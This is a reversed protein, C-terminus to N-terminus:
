FEEFDGGGEQGGGRRGRQKKQNIRYNAALNFSRSRWQFEGISYFDPGFNEYRRLRTNLLDRVSLTLTLDKSPLFDKSWGIDISTMSRNRGQVTARPARYNARIQLDSDWFSFRSTLRSNFSVAEAEFSDDINTGDTLQYFVNANADLRLWKLAFYNFTMEFGYDNRTSLNEPTTKSTGDPFVERIREIVGTSYRYYIGSTLTAKNFFNLYNIEYSDTFTPDLNPNGAFINRNDSFSLFPNLYWFRPRRVRRSYSVQIANAESFKYNLFASPFLSFYTRPNTENTQLLETNIDSYESRLGLQYNFKEGLKNGYQFYAAYINEDYNFDNSLNTLNEWSGDQLEEILYENSINRLSTNLGFEYQHDKGLPKVYDMRFNWRREGEQNGSRQDLAPSEVGGDPRFREEFISGETEVDDSYRASIELKHDRSSFEKTYNLSYELASEDESEDDTRTTRGLFNSTTNLFDDYLYTSLNSEDSLRYSFAGTLSEKESIFYDAGFRFSNSLGARNSSRSQDSIYTTADDYVEQYVAGIGPNERYNLGYSGFLNVKGKRYNLNAGVGARTPWGGNLDFSGNFGSRKDKKLVINIIGATGEAEYRASPNTVVEVREILNAPIQRLSNGNEANAFNSPKGDILIRVGTSGRLSVEGEIDVTVSPVNDLIDVASGGRNALDKGVNFIRKDLSFQTESKEARVEVEELLLGGESVKITGMDVNFDGAKMKDRDFPVPDIVMKEYGLFEIEAFSPGAKSEFSFMGDIDSIGGGLLSTDKKSFISITAFELASTTSADVVKGKITLKPADGRPGREGSGSQPRQANINFVFILALLSLINKLKM